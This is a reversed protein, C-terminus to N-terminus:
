PELVVECVGSHCNLMATEMLRADSDPPFLMPLKAKVIREDGGQMWGSTGPKVIEVKSRSVVLKYEATGKLDGAPGMGIVRLQQLEAHADKVSSKAGAQRLRDARATAERNDEDKGTAATALELLSLAADKQGQAEKVEALHEGITLWGTAHWAADLYSAAETMKGERYLIWGVTDWTAELLRSRTTLMQSSEEGTWTRSEAELKTLAAKGTSEALPLEVGMEALQYAVDNMMGADETTHLVSVFTAAADDKDGEKRYAQALTYRLSQSLTEDAPALALRAKAVTVAGPADGERLLDRALLLSPRGNEPQVSAWTRLTEQAEKHQKLHWQADSLSEYVGYADSHLQLEKQYDKVAEAFDSRQYALYGYTSWLRAQMPNSDKAQDLLTQAMDLQRAGINTFAQRVLTGADVKLKVAKSDSGGAGGPANTSSIMEGGRPVMQIYTEDGLNAAEAFKQYEKWEAFPVRDEFVEVKRQGYLVGKEFRYTEDLTAYKSKVHVPEPLVVTWGEPLKMTSESKEVRPVGLEVASVTPEKEDLKRLSVPSLQPVAKLDAWDGGKDRKYDFSMTIPASTDDARSVEMHSATGGYGMGGCMRQALEDYQAPSIQRLTARLVIEDDGRFTLTIHSTTLGDETLSGKAIMTQVPQFPPKAPTREVKAAGAEPVVLADHDRIVYMLMGYPAVEATTDLWVPKGGVDVRTILHNFAAPSPVAPNFRIGAGILVAEPHEGLASLMAALLTHKDKCDGYQNDLVDGASHPQYRGIGFAVGIYHIQTGVYGYVAQVKEEETTKGATLQAVKAKIETDPAMRDGELGRYWAGVEAWSKFTTWAVDPLKGERADVEEAATRVRKKEAERAADAEPGVTPKRNAWTWRYVHEAGEDSEAAKFEPSWVTLVTAKPVRLELTQKLLMGDRLFWEQGWFQGPAEATTRVVKAQWELTDGVRLDRLPLQSQKLDSYFPAAQTVADNVELAGDVPTEKVSGDAHRVRAYVWEVHESKGAFGLSVVKLEKLASEGQVRAVVTRLVSGTGDAAMAYVADNREIVLPELPYADANASAKAGTAGQADARVVGSFSVGLACLLSFWFSLLRM